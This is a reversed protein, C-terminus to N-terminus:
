ETLIMKRIVHDGNQMITDYFYSSISTHCTDFPRLSVAQILM